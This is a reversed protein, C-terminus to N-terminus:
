IFDTLIKDIGIEEAKKYTSQGNYDQKLLNYEKNLFKSKCYGRIKKPCNNDIWIMFTKQDDKPALNYYKKIENENIEIYKFILLAIKEIRLKYTDPVKSILDDYNGDAISKIIVNVSAVKDIIRHMMVYDDCKFKVLHNDINLVWGEKENSKKTKSLELIQEFSLKEILTVPVQYKIAFEEIKHYSLQYGNISNRIGILHMGVDEIKYNVVHADQLSIYEFIFTYDPNEKIMKKHNETLKSYGDKLRWSNKPNLAKSGNLFIKDKYWRASQMSGDLKNTIEFLKANKIEKEIIAISNEKVENINFFKRFPTTVLEDEELDIVVSRCERYISNPDNWFGPQMEDLGYRILVLNNYSTIQLPAIWKRYEDNDLEEIWRELNFEKIEGFKVKYDNKINMILSYVPNWMYKNKM